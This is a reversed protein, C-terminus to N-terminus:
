NGGEVAVIRHDQDPNSERGTIILLRPFIELMVSLFPSVMFMVFLAPLIPLQLFVNILSSSVSAHLLCVSLFLGEEPM